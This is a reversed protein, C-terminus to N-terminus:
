KSYVYMALKSISKTIVLQCSDLIKHCTALLIYSLIDNLVTTSLLLSQHSIMHSGSIECKM